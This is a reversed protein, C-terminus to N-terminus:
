PNGAEALPLEIRIRTGQGPASQIYLAGGLMQVREGISSLGIGTRHIRRQVAAPDFGKGNDEIRIRACRVDREVVVLSRTAGAHKLVNNLAEQVMRYLHTAEEGRFTDVNELRREIILGSSQALRDLLHELADTLGFQDIHLPRLNRALNRVEEIAGMVVETIAQLHAGSEASLGPQALALDAHNKILSLNQGLSDHLENALRKREQEQASILRHSFDKSASLAQQQVERLAEEAMRHDHIDTISGAMRVARGTSDWVAQGRARFWRYEAARTRVRYEVDYPTRHNLHDQVAGWVREKDEPHVLDIFAGVTPPFEEPSVYGLLERFRESYYVENTQVNWDWLGDNSGRVALQFREESNRLATEAKVRDTIDRQVTWIHHLFGDRVVGVANNLFWRDNAQADRGLTVGDVVSYGSEIFQSINTRNVPDSTQNLEAIHKGQLERASVWGRTRAAADNCEGVVGRDLIAALQEAVPLSIAIPPIFDFRAIGEASLAIFKRYREESERLAREIRRLETISHAPVPLGQDGRKKM